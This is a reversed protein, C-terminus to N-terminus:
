DDIYVGKLAGNFRKFQVTSNNLRQLFEEKTIKEKYWSFYFNDRNWGDPDIVHANCLVDWEESTKIKTKM